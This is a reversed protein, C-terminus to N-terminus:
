NAPKPVLTSALPVWNDVMWEKKGSGDAILKLGLYFTQPKITAGDKPLLAVELLAADSYSYDIKFRAVALSNIPYPVVPINGTMWEAHTLGGRVNPDSIKWAADLDARAVATKLFQRAVDTAAKSLKVSKPKAPANAANSPSGNYSNQSAHHSPVFVIIASAVGIVFILGALWPLARRVSRPTRRVPASKAVM